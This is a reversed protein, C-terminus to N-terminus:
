LRLVHYGIIDEFFVHVKRKEAISYGLDKIFHDLDAINALSSTIFFCHGGPIIFDALHILFEDIVARGDNKAHLALELLKKSHQEGRDKLGSPIKDINKDEMNEKRQCEDDMPLYPPNMCVLFYKRKDLRSRFADFLSANIITFNRSLNSIRVQKKLFMTANPNLDIADVLKFYRALFLAIIGSGSCMDLVPLNIGQIQSKERELFGKLLDLLLYTDDDPLYIGKGLPIDLCTDDYIIPIKM